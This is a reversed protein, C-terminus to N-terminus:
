GLEELKKSNRKKRKKKRKTYINHGNYGNKSLESMCNNSHELQVNQNIFQNITGKLVCSSANNNEYYFTHGMDDKILLPMSPPFQQNTQDLLKGGYSNLKEQKKIM